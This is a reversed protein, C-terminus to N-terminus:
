NIIAQGCNPCYREEVIGNDCNNEAGCAPCYYEDVHIDTVKQPLQKQLAKESMVLSQAKEKFYEINQSNACEVHRREVSQMERIYGIATEIDM